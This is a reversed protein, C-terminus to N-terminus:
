EDIVESLLDAKALNRERALGVRLARRNRAQLGSCPRAEAEYAPKRLASAVIARFARDNSRVSRWDPKRGHHRGQDIQGCGSLVALKHQLDTQLPSM